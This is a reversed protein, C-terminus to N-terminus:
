GIPVIVVKKNRNLYNLSVLIPFAIEHMQLM